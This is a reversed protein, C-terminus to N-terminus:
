DAYLEEDDDAEDTYIDLTSKASNSAKRTATGLGRNFLFQTSQVNGALAKVVHAMVIAAALENSEIFVKVLDDGTVGSTLAKRLLDNLLIETETHDEPLKRKKRAAEVEARAHAAQVRVADAAARKQHGNIFRKHQGAVAKDRKNSRLYKGTIRGCGCECNVNELRGRHIPTAATSDFWEANRIGTREKWTLVALHGDKRATM